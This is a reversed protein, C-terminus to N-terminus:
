RNSLEDQASQIAAKQARRKWDGEGAGSKLSGFMRVTENMAKDMRDLALKLQDRLALAQPDVKRFLRDKISDRVRETLGTAFLPVELLAALTAGDGKEILENVTQTRKDPSLGQMTGVIINLHAPNVKLGAKSALSAEVASVEARLAAVAGDLKEAARREFGDCRERVKRDHTAARDEDCPNARLENIAVAEDFNSKLADHARKLAPNNGYNTYDIQGPHLASNPAHFAKPLEVVDPVAKPLQIIAM